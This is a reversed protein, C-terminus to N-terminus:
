CLSSASVFHGGNEFSMKLYMKKFSFCNIEILVESFNTGLHEILLVGVNTLTIAQRRVPLLGNDNYNTKRRVYADRPRLSNFWYLFCDLKNLVVFYVATYIVDFIYKFVWRISLHFLPPLLSIHLSLSFCSM